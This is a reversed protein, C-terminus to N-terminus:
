RMGALFTENERAYQRDRVLARINDAVEPFDVYPRLAAILRSIGASSDIDTGVVNPIPKYPAMDAKSRTPRTITDM